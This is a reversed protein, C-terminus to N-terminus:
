QRSIIYFRLSYIFKDKITFYHCNEDAGKFYKLAHLLIKARKYWRQM